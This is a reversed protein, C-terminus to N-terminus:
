AQMTKSTPLGNRRFCATSCTLQQRQTKKQTIPRPLYRTRKGEKEAAGLLYMGDSEGKHLIDAKVEFAIQQDNPSEGKFAIIDFPILAGGAGELSLERYCQHKLYHTM